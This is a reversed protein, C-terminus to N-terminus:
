VYQCERERDSSRGIQERSRPGFCATHHTLHEHRRKLGFHIVFLSMSFRKGSLRKAEERGRQEHGLLQKYTNVVDANSAVADTDFRRGDGTIVAKARGEALEIRAVEANLELKGGLDEFLKVM